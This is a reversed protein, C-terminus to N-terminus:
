FINWYYSPSYNEVVTIDERYRNVPKNNDITYRFPSVFSPYLDDKPGSPTGGYWLEYDGDNKVFFVYDAYFSAGGQLGSSRNLQLTRKGSCSFNLTPERNFNTSVADEGEIFILNPNEKPFEPAIKVAPAKPPHQQKENNAKKAQEQSSVSAVVLTFIIVAVILRKM